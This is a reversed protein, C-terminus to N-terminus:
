VWRSLSDNNLVHQIVEGAARNQVAGVEYSVAETIWGLRDLLERVRASEASLIRTSAESDTTITVSLREGLSRAVIEVRGLSPANLTMVMRKSAIAPDPSPQRERFYVLDLEFLQDAILLPLVGYRYEVSGGDQENLAEWALRRQNEDREDSTQMDALTAQNHAAMTTAAASPALAQPEQELLKKMASALQDQVDTSQGMAMQQIAAGSAVTTGNWLQSEYVAQLKAMSMPMALKALYLGASLMADADAASDVAKELMTRDTPPLSVRYRREHEALADEDRAEHEAMAGTVLDTGQYQLELKDGVATVTARIQAGVPLAVTSVVVRWGDAFGVRYRNVDLKQLVALEVRDGVRHARQRPQQERSTTAHHSSVNGITM